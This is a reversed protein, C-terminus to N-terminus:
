CSGGGALEKFYGNGKLLLADQEHRSLEDYLQCFRKQWWEGQSLDSQGYAEFGGALNMARVALPDDIYRRGFNSALIKEWAALSRSHQTGNALELARTRLQGPAPRFQAASQIYERAATQLLEDPVDALVSSWVEALIEM